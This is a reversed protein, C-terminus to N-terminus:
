HGAAVGGMSCQIGRDECAKAMAAVGSSHEAPTSLPLSPFDLKTLHALIPHGLLPLIHYLSSFDDTGIRGQPSDKHNEWSIMTQEKFMEM